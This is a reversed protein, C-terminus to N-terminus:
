AKKNFRIAIVRGGGLDAGTLENKKNRIFKVIQAYWQNTRFMDKSVQTLPFEGHHAHIGRLKGDKLFFTYQTEVEESWYKGCYEQLDTKNKNDESKKNTRVGENVAGPQTVKIKMGNKPMSIFEIDASLQAVYFKNEGTAKLEIPPQIPGGACLKGDEIEIEVTQGIQPMPYSGVYKKLTDPKLTIFTRKVPEAVPTPSMNKGLYVSAAQLAILNPNFSGMNSVIAIGLEHEPFWMVFSRYGADGGGHSIMKAGNLEGISIGMGYDIKKGNSLICPEQMRAISAPKCIVPSRFNDLWKVLDGATTFLSTAGVNAYNLPSIAYGSGRNSYSYARDPVIQTLDQHFHTNKMDLPKFIREKCFDPFAKGTARSVIEALLTFGGNSYLHRTGPPFNLEKQNFLMRLIQDQTIVDTLSWGAIGLTQWQDRIGSTHQMLNRITIRHGYDPLEPLYKRIDDDISLIGDEELLVIAMATFQKSVSAVHFVTDPTVPIDYELNAFGYGKELILEGKEMVAIAAGPSGPKNWRSFIDDIKKAKEAKSLNKSPSSQKGFEVILGMPNTTSGNDENYVIFDLTNDGPKFGSKITFESFASLSSSKNGTSIGNILIDTGQNDSAWRGEIVVTSLDIGKLSFMLRFIYEGVPHNNNNPGVPEIWKAKSTNLLRYPAPFDDSITVYAKCSGTNCTPGSLLIYVPDETGEPTSGTNVLSNQDFPKSHLGACGTTVTILVFFAMTAIIRM